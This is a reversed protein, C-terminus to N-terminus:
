PHSTMQGARGQFHFNIGVRDPRDGERWVDAEPFAVRYRDLDADIVKEDGIIAYCDIDGLRWRIWPIGRGAVEFLQCALCFQPNKLMAKRERVIKAQWGVYGCVVALLTVVILLTRLSFQFWRRNRKPESQMAANDGVALLRLLRNQRGQRQGRM